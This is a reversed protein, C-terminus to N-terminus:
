SMPEFRYYIKMRIKLTTVIQALVKHLNDVALLTVFIDIKMGSCAKKDPLM